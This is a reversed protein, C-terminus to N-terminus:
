GNLRVWVYKGLIQKCVAYPLLGLRLTLLLLNVEYLVANLTGNVVDVTIFQFKHQFKVSTTHRGDCPFELPVLLYRTVPVVARSCATIFFPGGFLRHGGAYRTSLTKSKPTM